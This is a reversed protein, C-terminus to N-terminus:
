SDPSPPTWPPATPAYPADPATPSPSYPAEPIIAPPQLPEIRQRRSPPTPYERELVNLDKLKEILMQVTSIDAIMAMDLNHIQDCFKALAQYQLELIKVRRITTPMTSYYENSLQDMQKELTLIRTEYIAKVM